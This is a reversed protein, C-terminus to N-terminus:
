RKIGRASMVHGDLMFNLIDICSAALYRQKGLSIKGGFRLVFREDKRPLGVQDGIVFLASEGFDITSVKEGKEELVFIDVNSEHKERILSQLGNKRLSIGPHSSGNLVRRLIDEWTREDTGADRLEAGRIELQLPPKPPGNLIAHFKVDKRHAHSKFLSTLICQYVIDLRGGQVLNRFNGDTCGKRSHLVFEYM